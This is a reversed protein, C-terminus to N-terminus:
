AARELSGIGGQDQVEPYVKKTDYETFKIILSVARIKPTDVGWFQAFLFMVYKKNHEPNETNSNSKNIFSAFDEKALSEIKGYLESASKLLPEINSNLTNTAIIRSQIPKKLDPYIFKFGEWIAGGSVVAVITEVIGM